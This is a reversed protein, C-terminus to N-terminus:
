HSEHIATEQTKRVPAPAVHELGYDARLAKMATPLTDQEASEMTMRQLLAHSAEFFRDLGAPTCIVTVLAADAQDNWFAHPKWSPITIFADSSAQFADEELFQITLKGSRIHFIEVFEHRTFAPPPSHPQAIFDIVAVRNDTDRGSVRIHIQHGLFTSLWTGNVSDSVM